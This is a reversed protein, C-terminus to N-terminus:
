SVAVQHVGPAPGVQTTRNVIFPFSMIFGLPSFLFVDAMVIVAKEYNGERRYFEEDRPVNISDLNYTRLDSFSSYLYVICIIASALNSLALKVAARIRKRASEDQNTRSRLEIATRLLFVALYITMPLSCLLTGIFVVNAQVVIIGRTRYYDPIYVFYLVIAVIANLVISCFFALDIHGGYTQGRGMLKLWLQILIAAMCIVITETTHHPPHCCQGRTLLALAFLTSLTVIFTAVNTIAHVGLYESMPRGVFGPIQYILAMRVVHYGVLSLFLLRHFIYTFFSKSKRLAFIIFASAAFLLSISTIVSFIVLSTRFEM